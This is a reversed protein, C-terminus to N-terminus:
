CNGIRNKLLNDLANETSTIIADYDIMRFPELIKDVQAKQSNKLVGSQRNYGLKMSLFHNAEGRDSM